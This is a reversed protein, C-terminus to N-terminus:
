QCATFQLGNSLGTTSPSAPDRMWFQCYATRGPTFGAANLYASDFNFAYTGSCSVGILPGGANVLPTRVLPAGVCLTGGQFAVAQRVDGWIMLGNQQNLVNVCTVTFAGGSISPAGSSGITPTCGLSNTKATCYSSVSNADALIPGFHRTTGYNGAIDKSRLHYYRPSSSSGINMTVNTQTDMVNIAGTPDFVATTNWVGVYGSLGSLADSAATWNVNVNTNCSQVGVQHSSSALNSAAVPATLDIQYPGTQAYGPAWNGSNDVSRLSFNWFGQALTTSYSTVQEIDKTASPLGASSSTFVGYGDIGSVNDTAATWAFTITPDNTWAGALHTTSHLNTANAPATGDVYVTVADTVDLANDSRAQVTFTKVGETNWHTLWHHTRSTGHVVNGIAVDRGAHFNNMLDASSGDLMTNYSATLVDGSSTSNLFVGSAIYSPNTYVANCIVNDSPTVYIDSATVSLTPTPSTDGYTVIVCVGSHVIQGPVISSPYLKVKWDGVTPSNVMRIENNDVNSQQATYDGTNNAGTFPEADLFMDVDNVLAQSAGSSCANERYNLVVTVRTAGSAVAFDLEVYSGTAQDFSWFYLAQQSDGYNAKYADVRGAGYANLHAASGSPSTLLQDDKTLSGAMLTAALASPNYRLFSYHDCLQAALGAVLPTAMSTGGGNHYGTTTGATCSYLVQGVASVNPKWRGGGCPGRSSGTWITGPDGIADDYDIVNGVTLANKACSELGITGATPGENSASWIWLQNHSAAEADITRPSSESGIYASSVVNTSYSNSVLMPAPSTLTGDFYSSHMNALWTSFAVASGRKGVFFRRATTSGLAPAGGQYSDDVDNNGLITGAVHTGHGDTDTFPSGGGTYDWGVAWPDLAAHGADMGTDIYGAQCAAGDYVNRVLDANSMPMGEDHDNTPEVDLDVFQVFDLAVLQELAEIPLKAHFAKISEVWPGIELGLAELRRQQWGHAHTEVADFEPNGRKIVGDPDSEIAQAVVVKTSAACLDSEFVNVYVALKEGASAKALRASLDPHLKQWARPAGLWRVFDLGALTDLADASVALKVTYFPHFELVRAGLARLQEFRAETMRKNFMAFAYTTQTPRGDRALNAATLALEPDLREDAPPYYKGAAFGLFYPDGQAPALMVDAGASTGWQAPVPLPLADDPLEVPVAVAHAGLGDRPQEVTTLPAPAQPAALFLSALSINLLM